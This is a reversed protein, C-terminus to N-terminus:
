PNTESEGIEILDHSKRSIGINNEVLLEVLREGNMLAVPVKDPLNAEEVAGKSFDSTTIILGQEHTSLSGRVQQVTPTQINNKWKKVQVAMHTRISEGVVLTGRVDIGKDGSYPTVTVDEFGIETLLRAILKEFEVAPMEQINKLLQKRVSRNHSEIMGELGEPEWIVLGVMGKGHMVFRSQEGRRKRREIETIIQAYMTAEPTLGKTSLLKLELAKETIVQYHMPRNNAFTRLVYEAADTFSYTKGEHVSIQEGINIELTKGQTDDSPTSRYYPNLGYASPGTHIFRSATGNEKIDSSLTASITAVPTKGQTAWLQNDLIRQTIEKTPLPTGADLLIQYIADIAKM